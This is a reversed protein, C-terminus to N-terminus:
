LWSLKLSPLTEENNVETDCTMMSPLSTLFEVCFGTTSVISESVLEHKALKEICGLVVERLLSVM